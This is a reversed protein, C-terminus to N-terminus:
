KEVLRLWEIWVKPKFIWVKPKFWRFWVQQLEKSACPVKDKHM